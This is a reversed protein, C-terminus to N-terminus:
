QILIKHNSFEMGNTIRLLYMGKSLGNPIDVSTEVVGIASNSISHVLSGNMNFLEITLPTTNPKALNIKIPTLESLISPYVRYQSSALNSTNVGFGLTFAGQSANPTAFPACTFQDNFAKVRWRYVQSANQNFRNTANFTFSTNTVITDLVISQNTFNVATSVQVLYKTANPVATWNFNILNRPVVELFTPSTLTSIQTVAQLNSPVNNNLLYARLNTLAFVMAATQQPSFRTQCNDNSYSMYFQGNPVILDGNVDNQNFTTTGCNWRDPIYDSGTDCFRDGTTSCNAPLRPPVETTLRTVREATAPNTPDNSTTQFPHPLSFYHGLEHTVTTNNASFCNGNSGLVMGGQRNGVGPGSGPFYAFGCLGRGDYSSLNVLYANIKNAVNLSTMMTSTLGSNTHNFFNANTYYAVDDSLMFRIGSTDYNQNLVCMVDLIRDLTATRSTSTQNMIHWKIPVRFINERNLQSLDTMVDIGIANVYNVWDKPEETGCYDNNTQANIGIIQCFAFGLVLIFKKM